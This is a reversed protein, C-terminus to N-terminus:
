RGGAPTWVVAVSAVQEATCFRRETVTQWSERVLRHLIEENENMIHDKYKAGFVSSSCDDDDDDDDDYLRKNLLQCVCSM